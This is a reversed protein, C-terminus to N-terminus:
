RHRARANFCAIIITSILIFSVISLTIITNSSKINDQWPAQYIKSLRDDVNQKNLIIVNSTTTLFYRNTIELPQLIQGENIHM